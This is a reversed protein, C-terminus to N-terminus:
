ILYHIQIIYFKQSVEIETERDFLHISTTFVRQKTKINIPFSFKRKEAKIDFKTHYITGSYM